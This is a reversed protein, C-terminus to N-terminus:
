FSIPYFPAAQKDSEIETRELHGKFLMEILRTYKIVILILM